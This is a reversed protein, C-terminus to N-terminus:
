NKQRVPLTLRLLTDQRFRPPQFQNIKESFSHNAIYAFIVADGREVQPTLDLGPPAIFSRGNPSREQLYSLFSVTTAILPRNELQGGATDGLPNRRLGAAREFYEGNQQVFGRLPSGKEVALTVKKKERPGIPEIDFLYQGTALTM